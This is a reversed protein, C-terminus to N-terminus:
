GLPKLGAARAAKAKQLRGRGGEAGGTMKVKGGYKRPPPMPAGGGPPQFPFPGSMPPAPGGPPMMAPSLPPPVAQQSGRPTASIINIDIKSGTRGGRARHVVGGSAHGSARKQSSVLQSSGYDGDSMGSRGSIEKFKARSTTRAADRYPHAM